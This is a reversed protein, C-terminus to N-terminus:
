RFCIDGHPGFNKGIGARTSEKGANREFTGSQAGVVPSVFMQIALFYAGLRNDEFLGFGHWDAGLFQDRCELFSRWFVFRILLGHIMFSTFEARSPFKEM